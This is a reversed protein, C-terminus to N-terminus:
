LYKNKVNNMIMDYETDSISSLLKAHCNSLPPPAQIDNQLLFYSEILLEHMSKITYDNKHQELEAKRELILFLRFLEFGKLRSRNGKDIKELILLRKRTIQERQLVIKINNKVKCLLISMESSANLLIYNNQFLVKSKKDIFQQYRGIKSHILESSDEPMQAVLQLEQELKSLLM